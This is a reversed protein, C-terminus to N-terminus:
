RSSTACRGASLGLRAAIADLVKLKQSEPISPNQLVERLEASEDLLNAFDNLQGQAAILDLKQDSIVAALARAYRLDVVAM